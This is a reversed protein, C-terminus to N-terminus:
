RGGGASSVAGAAPLASDAGAAQVPVLGAARRGAVAAVRPLLVWTCRGGRVGPCVLCGEAPCRGSDAGLAGVILLGRGSEGLGGDGGPGRGLGLFRAARRSFGSLCAAPGRGATGDDHVHLVVAGEGATVAMRVLGGPSGSRTHVVANAVLEGM